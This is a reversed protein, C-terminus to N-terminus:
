RISGFPGTSAPWNPIVDRIIWVVVGLGWLGSVIFYGYILAMM